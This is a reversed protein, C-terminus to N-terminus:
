LGSGSAIRWLGGDRRQLVVLRHLDIDTFARYEGDFRGVHEIEVTVQDVTPAKALEKASLLQRVESVYVVRVAYVKGFILRRAREWENDVQHRYNPDYLPGEDKWVEAQWTAFMAKWTAEDNGMLATLWAEVVQRPSTAATVAAIRKTPRQKGKQRYQLDDKSLAYSRGQLSVHVRDWDQKARDAFSGPYNAILYDIREKEALHVPLAARNNIQQRTWGRDLVKEWQRLQDDYWRSWGSSFGDRALAPPGDPGLLRGQPTRYNREAHLKGRVEITELGVGSRSRRAVTLQIETGDSAAVSRWHQTEGNHGIAIQKGSTTTPAVYRKGNVAIIRDSIELESNRFDSDWDIWTVRFGVPDSTLTSDTRLGSILNDPSDPTDPSDGTEGAASHGPTDAANGTGSDPVANPDASRAGSASGGSSSSQSPNRFNTDMCGALWVVVVAWPLASRMGLAAANMLRLTCSRATAAATTTLWGAWLEAPNIAFWLAGRRRVQSERIRDAM